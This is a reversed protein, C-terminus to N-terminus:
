EDEGFRDMILKEIAELALAEDAEDDGHIELEITKGQNIGLVMIEMVNKADIRRQNYIIHIQSTFRSATNVLKVAARAHLGLKNIITIQKKLM